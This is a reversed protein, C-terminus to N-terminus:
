ANKKRIRIFFRHLIQSAEHEAIGSYIEPCHHTQGRSFVRAGQEIAGSKPDSAGYFLRRIRALSILGACMVCPELTVFLDYNALREQGLLSCAKRIVLIEAHGSPDKLERTRNGSRAIVEQTPSVVVAGIPVEGRGGAIKAEQIAIQMFSKFM